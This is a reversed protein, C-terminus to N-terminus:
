YRWFSRSLQRDPLYWVVRHRGIANTTLKNVYLTGATAQQETACVRRGAPFTVCVTYAVDRNAKFFVGIRSRSPCEHAPRAYRSLGCAVYATLELPVEEVPPIPIPTPVPVPSPTPTPTPTPTPAPSAYSCPCPLSECAVGDGDADLRYPDGALLYGQAQAQNSFNDCDYDVAQAAPPNSLFGAGALVVALLLGISIRVGPM